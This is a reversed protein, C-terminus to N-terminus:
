VIRLKSLMMLKIVETPSFCVVKAAPYAIFFHPAHMFGTFESQYIKQGHISVWCM